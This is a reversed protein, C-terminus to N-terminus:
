AGPTVIAKAEPTGAVVTTSGPMENALERGAMTNTTIVAKVASDPDKAITDVVAVANAQTHTFMAWIFPALSVVIGGVLELTSSTAWGHATIYPGFTAIIWRVASKVQEQNV